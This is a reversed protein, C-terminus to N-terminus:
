RISSLINAIALTHNIVPLPFSNPRDGLGPTGTPILTAELTCAKRLRWYPTTASVVPKPM